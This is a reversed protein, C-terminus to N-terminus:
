QGVEVLRTESDSGKSDQFEEFLRRSIELVFTAEEVAEDADLQSFIREPPLGLVKDGNVSVERDKRLGRSIHVLRDVHAQFWPPFTARNERLFLGVDHVKPVELGVLRLTAKLAMEAAEQCRRIALHWVGDTRAMKAQKLSYESTLLYSQAMEENTM